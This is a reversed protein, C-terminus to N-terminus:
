VELAQISFRTAKNHTLEKVFSLNEHVYVSRCMHTYYCNSIYIHKYTLVVRRTPRDVNPTPSSRVFPCCAQVKYLTTPLLSLLVETSKGGAISRKRRSNNRSKAARVVVLIGVGPLLRVKWQLPFWTRHPIVLLFLARCAEVSVGNVSESWWVTCNRVRRIDVRALYYIICSIKWRSM